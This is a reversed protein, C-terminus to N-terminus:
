YQTLVADYYKRKNEDILKLYDDETFDIGWNYHNYRLFDIENSEYFKLYEELTYGGIYIEIIKFQNKYIGILAYAETLPGNYVGRAVNNLENYKDYLKLYGHKDYIKYPDQAEYCM